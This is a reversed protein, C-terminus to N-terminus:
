TAAPSLLRERRAAAAAQRTPEGSWRARFLRNHPTVTPAVFPVVETAYGGAELRLAREGDVFAEVFRTRVPALDPLHSAEARAHAVAWHPLKASYCCPVLFLWKARQAVVADIVADSAPGCAHLGVVASRSLGEWAAADHVDAEVFHVKASAGLKAAARRADALRREDRELVVVERFGLLDAALLGVYAKGAAVDVLPQGKGIRSLEELLATVELAKREDEERLRTGPADIFLAHLRARVEDLLSM